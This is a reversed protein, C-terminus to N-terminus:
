NVFEVKCPRVQVVAPDLQWLLRWGSRNAESRIARTHQQGQGASILRRSNAAQRSKVAAEYAASDTDVYAKQAAAQTAAADEEPLSGREWWQARAPLCVALLVIALCASNVHM